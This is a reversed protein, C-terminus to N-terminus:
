FSISFITKHWFIQQDFTTLKKVETSLNNKTVKLMSLTKLSPALDLVYLDNHDMLKTSNDQEQQPLLALQV